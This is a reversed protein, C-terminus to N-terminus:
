PAVVADPRALRLYQNRAATEPDMFISEGAVLLEARTSGSHIFFIKVNLSDDVTNQDGDDNGVAGTMVFAGEGIGEVQLADHFAFGSMGNVLNLPRLEDPKPERAFAQAAEAADDSEYSYVFVDIIPSGEQSVYTVQVAEKLGQEAVQSDAPLNAMLEERGHLKEESDTFEPPLDNPQLALEHISGSSGGGSLTVLGVFAGTLALALVVLGVILIPKAQLTGM